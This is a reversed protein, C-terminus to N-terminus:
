TTNGHVRAYYARMNAACARAEAVKEPNTGRAESANAWADVLAPARDDRALLVFMPEDPAANAYCDYAGPQEKTGM